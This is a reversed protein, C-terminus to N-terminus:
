ETGSPAELEGRKLKRTGNVLQLHKDHGLAHRQHLDEPKLAVFVQRLKLHVVARGDIVAKDSVDKGVQALELHEGQAFAIHGVEGGPDQEPVELVQRIHVEKARAHGLQEEREKVIVDGIASEGQGPCGFVEEQGIWKVGGGECEFM